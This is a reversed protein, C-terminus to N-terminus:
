NAWYKGGSETIISKIAMLSLTTGIEIVSEGTQAAIEDANLGESKLTEYIKAELRSLELNSPTKSNQLKPTKGLIGPFSNRARLDPFRHCYRRRM